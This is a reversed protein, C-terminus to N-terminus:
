AEKSREWIAKVQRRTKGEGKERRAVEVEEPLARTNTHTTVVIEAGRSPVPSQFPHPSREEM